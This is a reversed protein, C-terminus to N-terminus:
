ASKAEGCQKLREGSRIGDLLAEVSKATRSARHSGGPLSRLDATREMKGSGSASIWGSKHLQRSLMSTLIHFLTFTAM